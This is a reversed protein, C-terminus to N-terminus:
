SLDSRASTLKEKLALIEEDTYRASNRDAILAYFCNIRKSKSKGEKPISSDRSVRKLKQSESRSM